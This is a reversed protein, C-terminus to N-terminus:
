NECSAPPPRNPGGLCALFAALDAADLDRDGDRDFCLCTEDVPVDMGKTCVQWNGFDSQDVDLDEDGDAFPSPCGTLVPIRLDMVIPLHDSTRDSTTDAAQLGAAVRAMPTMTLTNLVFRAGVTIVSDTLIFRDLRSAPTTYDSSWTDTDGTFPDGPQLDLMDSVDWDGKVDPGFTANNVIDGTLLTTEPQPGGVLNFDGVAIMPTAARLTINGGGQRADGLWAAIADASRQRKTDDSATGGAKLHVGLLYIDDLYPAPLDALCLNVGRTSSTPSTDNRKLSLPYRSAIVVRSWGDDLGDNTQWSGSASPLVSNLRAAVQTVTVGMAVEQFVILDPRVAALIRNFAADRSTEALFNQQTNYSLLRVDLPQEKGYDGAAPNYAEAVPAILVTAALLLAAGPCRDRGGLTRNRGM